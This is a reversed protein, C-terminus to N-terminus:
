LSRMCSGVASTRTLLQTPILRSHHRALPHGGANGGGGGGGRVEVVKFSGQMWNIVPASLGVQVELHCLSISKSPSVSLCGM